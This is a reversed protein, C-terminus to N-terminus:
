SVGRGHLEIVECLQRADAEGILKIDPLIAQRLAAEVMRDYAAQLHAPIFPRAHLGVAAIESFSGPVNM